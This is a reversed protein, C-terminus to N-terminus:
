SEGVWSVSLAPHASHSIRVRCQYSRGRTHPKTSRYVRTTFKRPPAGLVCAASPHVRIGASRDRESSTSEPISAAACISYLSESGVRAGGLACAVSNGHSERACSPAGKAVTPWRWATFRPAVLPDVYTPRPRPRSKQVSRSIPPPTAPMLYLAALFLMQLGGAGDGELLLFSILESVSRGMSPADGGDVLHRLPITVSRGRAGFGVALPSPPGEGFGFGVLAVLWGRM